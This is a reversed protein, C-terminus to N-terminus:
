REVFYFFFGNFLLFSEMEIQRIEEHIAKWSLKKRTEKWIINKNYYIFQM